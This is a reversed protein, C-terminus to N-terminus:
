NEPQRHNKPCPNVGAALCQNKRTVVIGQAFDLRDSQQNTTREQTHTVEPAAEALDINIRRAGNEMGRDCHQEYTAVQKDNAHECLNNRIIASGARKLELGKKDEDGDRQERHQQERFFNSLADPLEDTTMETAGLVIEAVDPSSKGM